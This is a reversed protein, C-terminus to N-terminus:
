QTSCTAIAADGLSPACTATTTAAWNANPWITKAWAAMQNVLTQSVGYYKFQPIMYWVRDVWNSSDPQGPTPLQTASVGSAGAYFQQPTFQQVSALWGQVIGNYIASRTSAPVVSWTLQWGPSVERSIDAVEWNWGTGPVQPGIGNNTIQIGKTLWLNLLVAQPASDDTSM